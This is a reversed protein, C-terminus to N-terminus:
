NNKEYRTLANYKQHYENTMKAINSTYNSMTIISNKSIIEYLTLRSIFPLIMFFITLM